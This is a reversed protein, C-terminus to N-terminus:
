NDGWVEHTWWDDDQEHDGRRGFLSKDGLKKERRDLESIAKKLLMGGIDSNYVVWNLYETPLDIIKTGKHKGIPWTEEILLGLKIM